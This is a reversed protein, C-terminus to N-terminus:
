ARTILTAVIGIIAVGLGLLAAYAAVRAYSTNKRQLRLMEEERAQVRRADHIKAAEIPGFRLADELDDRLSTNEEPDKVWPMHHDWWVRLRNFRGGDFDSEDVEM